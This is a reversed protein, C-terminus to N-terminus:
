VSRVLTQSFDKVGVSFCELSRIRNPISCVVHHFSVVQQIDSQWMQLGDIVQGEILKACQHSTQHILGERAKSIISLLLPYAIAPQLCHSFHPAETILDGVKTVDAKLVHFVEGAGQIPHPTIHDVVAAPLQGGFVSRLPCDGLLRLSHLSISVSASLTMPVM